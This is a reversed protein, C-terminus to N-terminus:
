AVVHFGREGRLLRRTDELDFVLEQHEDVELDRRRQRDDLSRRWPSDVIFLDAAHTTATAATTRVVTADSDASRTLSRVPWVTVPDNRLASTLIIRISSALPVIASNGTSVTAPISNVGRVCGGCGAGSTEFGTGGTVTGDPVTRLTRSVCAISTSAACVPASKLDTSSSGTMIPPRTTM